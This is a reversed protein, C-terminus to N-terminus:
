TQEGIPADAAGFITTPAGAASVAESLIANGSIPFAGGDAALATLIPQRRAAWSREPEKPLLRRALNLPCFLTLSRYSFAGGAHTMFHKNRTAPCRQM